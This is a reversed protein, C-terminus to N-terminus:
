ICLHFSCLLYYFFMTSSYNYIAHSYVEDTPVVSNSLNNLSCAVTVIKDLTTIDEDPKRSVFDIPQCMNLLSYKKRVNGIVREVHIRVNAIRRTQEVEIGSLQKKGKTFAPTTVTACYLGVSDKIDFGRDALITDGPLIKDLLACKETLHKDSVRGGWGNSIFSVIGHPTIGILYKATNHHKYSSYTQARALLSSPRDIYIEFCDIIVTCNPCHKRFDMPLTKRLIDREPWIILHKLRKFLVDIVDSFIRSVTSRHIGFRHLWYGTWFTWSPAEYTGLYNASIYDIHLSTKSFASCVSYCNVTLEM